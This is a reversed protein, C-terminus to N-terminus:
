GDLRCRCNLTPYLHLTWSLRWLPQWVPQPNLICPLMGGLFRDLKMAKRHSLKAHQQVYFSQKESKQKWLFRFEWVRIKLSFKVVQQWYLIFFSEGAPDMCLGLDCTTYLGNFTRFNMFLYVTLVFMLFIFKPYFSIHSVIHLLIHIVNFLNSIVYINMWM